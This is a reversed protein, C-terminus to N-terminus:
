DGPRTSRKGAAGPLMALEAATLAGRRTVAARAVADRLLAEHLEPTLAADRGRLQVRLAALSSTDAAALVGAAASELAAALERERGAMRLAALAMLVRFRAEGALGAAVEDLLAIAAVTLEVGDAEGQMM